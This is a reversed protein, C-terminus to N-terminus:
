ITTILQLVDPRPAGLGLKAEENGDIGLQPEANGPLGCEVIRRLRPPNFEMDGTAGSSRLPINLRNGMQPHVRRDASYFEARWKTECRCFQRAAVINRSMFFEAIYPITSNLLFILVM